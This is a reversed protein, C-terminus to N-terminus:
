IVFMRSEASPYLSPRKGTLRSIRSKRPRAVVEPDLRERELDFEAFRDRDRDAGRLRDRDIGFTVLFVLDSCFM